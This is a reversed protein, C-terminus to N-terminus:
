VYNVGVVEYVVPKGVKPLRLERPWANTAATVALTGYTDNNFRNPQFVINLTKRNFKVTVIIKSDRILEGRPLCEGHPNNNLQNLNLTVKNGDKKSASTFKTEATM